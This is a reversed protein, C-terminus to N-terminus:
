RIAHYAETVLAPIRGRAPVEYGNELAWARIEKPSTENTVAAGGGGQRRGQASAVKRAVKVYPALAERLARQEKATLDVEYTTGELGFQIAADPGDVKAGSLDSFYQITTKQAM